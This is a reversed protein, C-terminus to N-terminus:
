REPEFLTPDTPGWLEPDYHLVMSNSQVMMGAPIDFGMVKSAFM